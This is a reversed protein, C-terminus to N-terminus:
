PTEPISFCARAPFRPGAGATAHSGAPHQLKTPQIIIAKM